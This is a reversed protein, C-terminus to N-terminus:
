APAPQRAPNDGRCDDVHAALAKPSTHEFLDVVSLNPIDFEEVLRTFIDLVHLSTGGVDFFNDDDDIDPAGIVQRWIDRVRDVSTAGQVPQASAADVRPPKPLAAVDLKGNITVPLETLRVFVEPVMYTPIMTQLYRRTEVEDIESTGVFYGVLRPQADDSSDLRVVCDFIGPVRALASEIEGLEVRHGRIKVQGDGRGMYVINGDHRVFGLDGTRYTLGDLGPLRVFRQATLDPQGLYGASVSPGAIVIEGIEGDAVERGADDVVRVTITQLAHGLVSESEREADAPLVPHCTVWVTTETPGYINFVKVRDGLFAFFRRLMSFRLSEGGLIVQRLLLRNAERPTLVRLFQSFATPTQSLITVGKDQVFALFADPSRTTGWSPVTLRGGHLLPGFIEWVSFDFAYSHFLCGADGENWPHFEETARIFTLVNGHSVQVGKPRGTSGSTFIVYAHQEPSLDPLARDVRAASMLAAVDLRRGVPVDSLLDGSTILPLGEIQENILSVRAAPAMPDIPVYIKGAKLIALLTVILDRSPALAVAVYESPLDLLNTAVRDVHAAMERYTLRGEEDELAVRHPFRVAVDDITASLSAHARGDGPPPVAAGSPDPPAMAAM